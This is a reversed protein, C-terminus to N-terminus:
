EGFRQIVEIKVIPQNLEADTEFLGSYQNALINPLLSSAEIKLPDCNTCLSVTGIRTVPNGDSDCMCVWILYTGEMAKIPIGGPSKVFTQQGCAVCHGPTFPIVEPM